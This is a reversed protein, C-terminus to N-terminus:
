LSRRRKMVRRFVRRDISESSSCDLWDVDCVVFLGGAVISMTKIPRSNRIGSIFWSRSFDGASQRWYKLSRECVAYELVALSNAQEWSRKLERVVEIWKPMSEPAPVSTTRRDRSHMGDRHLNAKVL